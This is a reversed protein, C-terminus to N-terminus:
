LRAVRGFLRLLSASTQTVGHNQVGWLGPATSSRPTQQPDRFTNPIDYIETNVRFFLSRSSNEREGVRCRQRQGRSLATARKSHLRTTRSKKSFCACAQCAYLSRLGKCRSGTITNANVRINLVLIRHLGSMIYLVACHAKPASLMLPTRTIETGLSSPFLKLRHHTLLQFNSYPSLTTYALQLCDCRRRVLRVTGIKL